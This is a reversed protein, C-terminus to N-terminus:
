EDDGWTPSRRIQDFPMAVTSLINSLHASVRGFMRASIALVVALNVSVDEAKALGEIYRAVEGKAADHAQMVARAGSADASVFAARAKPFLAQIGDRITRLGAVHPGMRPADALAAAKVLAKALDGMREADQVVSLLLLSLSLEDRPNIAMHELVLRRVERELRNVEEDMERIDVTLPENDLLHGSAAGFMEGSLELMSGLHRVAQDVLAPRTSRFFDFIPM